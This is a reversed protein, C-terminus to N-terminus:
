NGKLSQIADDKPFVKKMIHVLKSSATKALDSDMTLPPQGKEGEGTKVMIVRCDLCFFLDLDNTGNSFTLVLDPVHICADAVNLYSRKDLLVNTLQMVLDPPVLVGAGSKNFHKLLDESNTISTFSGITRWATVTQPSAILSVNKAGGFRDSIGLADRRCGLLCVASLTLLFICLRMFQTAKCINSAANHLRDQKMIKVNRGALFNTWFFRTPERPREGWGTKSHASV